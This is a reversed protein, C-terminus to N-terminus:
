PEGHYFKRTIFKYMLLWVLLKFLLTVQKLCPALVLLSMAIGTTTKLVCLNHIKPLDYYRDVLLSEM